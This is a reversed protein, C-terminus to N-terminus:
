SHLAVTVCCIILILLNSRFVVARIHLSYHIICKSGMLGLLSSYVMLCYMESVLYFLSTLSITYSTYFLFILIYTLDLVLLVISKKNSHTVMNKAFETRKDSFNQM